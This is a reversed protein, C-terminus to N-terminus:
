IWRPRWESSTTSATGALIPLIARTDARFDPLAGADFAAQRERRAALRARREPEIARHLSVLLGLLPAPLLQEQGAVRETLALGAAARPVAAVSAPRSSAPRTSPITAATATASM